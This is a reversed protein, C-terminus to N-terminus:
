SFPLHTQVSIYVTSLLMTSAQSTFNEACTYTSLQNISRSCSQGGASSVHAGIFLKHGVTRAALPMAEAEKEEKTKRKRVVKEEAHGNVAGDKSDEPKTTKNKKRSKSPTAKAPPVDADESEEEEEIKEVKAKAVKSAERSSRRPSVADIALNEEAAEEKIKPRKDVKSRMPTTATGNLGSETALATSPISPDAAPDSPGPAPASMRKRKAMLVM